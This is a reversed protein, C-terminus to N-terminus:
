IWALDCQVAPVILSQGEGRGEGPSPGPLPHLGVIRVQWVQLRSNSWRDSAAPRQACQPAITSLIDCRVMSSRRKTLSSAPLSGVTELMPSSTPSFAESSMSIVSVSEGPAVISIDNLSRPRLLSSACCTGGAPAWVISTSGFDGVISSRISAVSSNWGGGSASSGAVPPLDFPREVCVM